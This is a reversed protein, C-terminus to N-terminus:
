RSGAVDVADDIEIKILDLDGSCTITEPFTKMNLAFFYRQSLDLISDVNSFQPLFEPYKPSFRLSSYGEVISKGLGLSIFVIGEEPKMYSLPYYNYSQAVGSIAPYFYDGYRNGGLQQIIVAM